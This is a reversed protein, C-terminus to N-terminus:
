GEEAVAATGVALGDPAAVPDKLADGDLAAGDLGMDEVAAKGDGLADAVVAVSSASM